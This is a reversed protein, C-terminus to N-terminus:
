KRIDYIAVIGDYTGTALLFPNHSSFQCSTIRSPYRITREPYNPNKLTFFQIYGDANHSLDLEGYTVALLDKNVPNWDASSVTRGKTLPSSFRFLERICSTSRDFTDEKEDEVGKNM